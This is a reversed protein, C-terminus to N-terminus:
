IYFPVNMDNNTVAGYVQERVDTDTCEEFGEAYSLKQLERYAFQWGNLTDGDLAVLQQAAEVIRGVMKNGTTTFMGYRKILTAM